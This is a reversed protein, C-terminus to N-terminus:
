DTKATLSKGRQVTMSGSSNMLEFSCDQLLIRERHKLFIDLQEFFGSAAQAPVRQTGCMGFCGSSRSRYLDGDGCCGYTNVPHKKETIPVEINWHEL